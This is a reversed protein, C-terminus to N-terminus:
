FWCSDSDGEQISRPSVEGAFRVPASDTELQFRYRIVGPSPEDFFPTGTQAVVGPQWEPWTDSTGLTTASASFHAAGGADSTVRFGQCKLAGTLSTSVRLVTGGDSVQVYLGNRVAREISSAVLQGRTTAESVSVVEEQTQLSRAFIAAIGALVIGSVIIAVILEILGLGADRHDHATIM